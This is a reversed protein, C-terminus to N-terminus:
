YSGHTAKTLAMDASSVLGQVRTKPPYENMNPCSESPVMGAFFMLGHDVYLPIDPFRTGETAQQLNSLLLKYLQVARM